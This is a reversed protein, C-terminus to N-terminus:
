AALGPLPLLMAQVSATEWLFVVLTDTWLSGDAPARAM